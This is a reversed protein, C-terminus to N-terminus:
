QAHACACHRYGRVTVTYERFTEYPISARPNPDPRYVRYNNM